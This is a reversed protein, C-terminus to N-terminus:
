STHGPTYLVNIKYSCKRQENSFHKDKYVEHAYGLKLHIIKGRRFFLISDLNSVELQHILDLILAESCEICELFWNLGDTENKDPLFLTKNWKDISFIIGNTKQKLSKSYTTKGSGTNGVILHIM